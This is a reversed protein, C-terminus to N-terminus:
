PASIVHDVDAEDATRSSCFSLEWDASKDQARM